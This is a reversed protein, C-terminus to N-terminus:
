RVKAYGSSVRAVAHHTRIRSTGTRAGAHAGCTRPCGGDMGGRHRRRGRVRRFAVVYGSGRELASHPFAAVVGLGRGLLHSQNVAQPFVGSRKVTLRVRDIQDLARLASHAALCSLWTSPVTKEAWHLLAALDAWYREDTLEPTLPETGTVVLADPPDQYLDAVDQYAYSGTDFNAPDPSLGPIRYCRLETEVGMDSGVLRSAFSDHTEEFAADPMNNVLGVRLVQLGPMARVQPKLGGGRGEIEGWTPAAVKAKNAM